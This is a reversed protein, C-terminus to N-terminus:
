SGSDVPKINGIGAQMNKATENLEGGMKRSQGEAWSVCGRGLSVFLVPMVTAFALAILSAKSSIAWVWWSVAAQFSGIGDSVGLFMVIFAWAAAVFCLREDWGKHFVESYTWSWFGEPREHNASVARCVAPAKEAALWCLVKFPATTHLKGDGHIREDGLQAVAANQVISSYRFRDLALYALNIALAAGSV